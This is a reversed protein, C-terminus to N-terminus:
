DASQPQNEVLHVLHVQWHLRIPPQIFPVVPCQLAEVFLFGCELVAIILHQLPAPAISNAGRSKVHRIWLM